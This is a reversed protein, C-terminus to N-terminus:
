VNDENDEIKTVEHLHTNHQVDTLVPFKTEIWNYFALYRFFLWGGVVFGIGAVPLMYAIRLLLNENYVDKFLFLILAYPLAFPLVFVVLFM